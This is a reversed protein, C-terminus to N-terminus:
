NGADYQLNEAISQKQPALLGPLDPSMDVSLPLGHEPARRLVRVAAAAQRKDAIWAPTYSRTMYFREAGEGGVPRVGPPAAGLVERQLAVTVETTVDKACAVLSSAAVVCLLVRISAPQRRSIM